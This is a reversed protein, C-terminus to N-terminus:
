VQMNAIFSREGLLLDDLLDDLVKDHRGGVPVRSKERRTGAATVGKKSSSLQDGDAASSANGM